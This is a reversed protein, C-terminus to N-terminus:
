TSEKLVISQLCPFNELRCDCGLCDVDCSAVEKALNTHRTSFVTILHAHGNSVALKYKLYICVM